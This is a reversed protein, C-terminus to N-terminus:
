AAGTGNPVIEYTVRVRVPRPMLWWHPRARLDPRYKLYGHTSKIWGRCAARTRFLAVEMNEGRMLHTQLHTHESRQRWQAAWRTVTESM